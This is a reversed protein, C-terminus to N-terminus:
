GGIQREFRWQKIALEFVQDYEAVGFDRAFEKGIACWREICFAIPDTEAILARQLDVISIGQRESGFAFFGSRATIFHANVAEEGQILEFWGFFERQSATQSQIVVLRKPGLSGTADGRSVVRVTL